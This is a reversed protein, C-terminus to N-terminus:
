DPNSVERPSQETGSESSLLDSLTKGRGPLFNINKVVEDNVMISLDTVDAFLERLRSRQMERDDGSLKSIDNFEILDPEDTDSVDIYASVVLKALRRALTKVNEDINLDEPSRNRRKNQAAENELANKYELSKAGKITLYQRKGKAMAPDGTALDFLEIRHVLDASKENKYKGFGM